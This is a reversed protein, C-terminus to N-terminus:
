PSVYWESAVYLGLASLMERKPKDRQGCVVVVLNASQLKALRRAEGLLETGESDWDSSRRVTFDDIMCVLTGPDYVPPAKVISALLFGTLEGGQESVLAITNPRALQAEFFAIQKPEADEARHWLTPAYAEYETRKAASLSAMSSIDELGAKRVM